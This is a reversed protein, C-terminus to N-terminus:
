YESERACFVRGEEVRAGEIRLLAAKRAAGGAYGGLLGGSRVVRHCPILLAVPNRGVAGGVARAAARGGLRRALAAAIEGYTVTKGYPIARLLEWVERAFASGATFHVPPTEGPNRGSFYEDLWRAAGALVAEARADGPLLAREGRPLSEAPAFAGRECLINQASEPNASSKEAKAPRAGEDGDRVAIGCIGAIDKAFPIEEDTFSRVRNERAGIKGDREGRSGRAAAREEEPSRAFRM